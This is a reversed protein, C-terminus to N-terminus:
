IQNMLIKQVYLHQAVRKKMQFRREQNHLKLLAHSLDFERKVRKTRDLALKHIQNPPKPIKLIQFALLKM